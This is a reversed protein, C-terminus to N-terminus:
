SNAAYLSDIIGDALGIVPVHVYEAKVVAAIALFVRAAPVIVDARDAKLSYTEMRQEPMLLSLEDHLSKDDCEAIRGLTAMRVRFFEDLNNSYIGLFSLRELLPVEPRAAEQLIRRNFYMWSLDREVYAYKHKKDKATM